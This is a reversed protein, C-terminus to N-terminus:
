YLDVDILIDENTENTTKASLARGIKNVIANFQAGTANTTAAIASVRGATTSTSAAATLAGVPAGVTHVNTAAVEPDTLCLSPGKIVIWFLEGVPVGAAPWHEDVVGACLEDTVSCYGAVRKREYGATTDWKVVRKPKLAVTSVNRVLCRVVPRNSRRQRAVGAVATALDEGPAIAGEYRTDYNTSSVTTGTNHWGKGIPVKKYIDQM